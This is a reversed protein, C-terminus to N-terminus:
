GLGLPLRRQNLIMPHFFDSGVVMQRQLRGAVGVPKCCHPLGANNLGMSYEPQRCLFSGTLAPQATRECFAGTPQPLQRGQAPVSTDDRGSGPPPAPQQQWRISTRMQPCHIISCMRAKWGSEQALHSLQTGAPPLGLSDAGLPRLRGKTPASM